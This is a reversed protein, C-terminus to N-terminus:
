AGDLRMPVQTAKVAAHRRSKRAMLRVRDRRTGNGSQPGRHPLDHPRLGRLRASRARNIRACSATVARPSFPFRGRGTGMFLPVLEEDRRRRLGRRREREGAGDGGGRLSSRWRVVGSRELWRGGSCRAGGSSVRLEPLGRANEGRVTAAIEPLNKGGGNGFFTNMGGRHVREDEGSSRNMRRRRDTSARMDLHMSSLSSLQKSGRQIKEMTGRLWSQM